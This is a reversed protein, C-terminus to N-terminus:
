KKCMEGKSYSLSALLFVLYGAAGLLSFLAVSLMFSNFYYGVFIGLVRLLALLAQLFLGVHQKDKIALIQGIPSTLFQVCIVIVLWQAVQGGESWSDGLVFSFIQEGFLAIISMPLAILFSLKLMVKKALSSLTGNRNAEAAEALFAQGVAQGLLQMPASMVRNAMFYLGASVPGFLLVFLLNPAQLGVANLMGTWTSYMPFRYQERGARLIGKIKVARLTSWDTKVISFLLGGAGASQGLIQGALLAPAGMGYGGLQISALVASQSFKSAALSGFKRKRISWLSFINYLGILFCGIPLMWIWKAVGGLNIVGLFYGSFFYLVVALLTSFFCLVLISLFFIDAADSDSAPLPIALEYRLSAIVSFVGLIAAFAALMGFDEPTYLRSLIPTVLIILLQGAATGGALTAVNRSFGEKKLFRM